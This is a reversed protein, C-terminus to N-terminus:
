ENGSVGPIVDIGVEGLYVNPVQRNISFDLDFSKEIPNSDPAIYVKFIANARGQYPFVASLDAGLMGGLDFQFGGTENIVASVVQSRSDSTLLELTIIGGQQVSTGDPAFVQGYVLFPNEGEAYNTPTVAYVTTFPKANSLIRFNYTTGSKLGNVDVRHFVSKDSETFKTGDELEIGGVVSRETLWAVAFSSSRVDTIVVNRPTDDELASIRIDFRNNVLVATLAPITVILGIIIVASLISKKKM